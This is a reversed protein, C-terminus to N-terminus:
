EGIELKKYNFLTFDYDYFENIIKISDNNLYNYYNNTNTNIKNKNEKLNFDKHGLTHMDKYLTETHLIKINPILQKNEDTVFLYQPITHNDVSENLYRKIITNYVEEKSSNIKIKKLFFLDSILREYPNRVITIIELNNFDIKFYDKYKIITQYTMHQLTSDITIDTNLKNIFMFLSNSNLPIKYKRSLYKELSTGGTKPIHIFLLNINQNKFYPM